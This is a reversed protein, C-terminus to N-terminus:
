KNGKLIYPNLIYRKITHFETLKEEAIFKTSILVMIYSHHCAFLSSIAYAVLLPEPSGTCDWWARWQKCMSCILRSAAVALFRSKQDSQTAQCTPKFSSQNCIHEAGKQTVCSKYLLTHMKDLHAILWINAPDDGKKYELIIKEHNLAM